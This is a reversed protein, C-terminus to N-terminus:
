IQLINFRIKCINYNMLKTIQKLITLVVPTETLFESITSMFKVLIQDEPSAYVKKLLPGIIYLWSNTTLEKAWKKVVRFQRELLKEKQEKTYEPRNDKVYTNNIQGPTMPITKERNEQNLSRIYEIYTFIIDVNSKHKLLTNLLAAESAARVKENSDILKIALKPIIENQDLYCFLLMAENRLKIDEDNIRLLLQETLVSRLRTHVSSKLIDQNLQFIEYIIFLSNMREVPKDSDLKLFINPLVDEPLYTAYEALFGISAKSVSDDQDLMILLQDVMSKFREPGDVLLFKRLVYFGLNRGAVFEGNLINSSVINLFNEKTSDSKFIGIFNEKTQHGLIL